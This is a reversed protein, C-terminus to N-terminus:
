VIMALLAESHGREGNLYNRSMIHSRTFTKALFSTVPLSSKVPVIEIRRNM